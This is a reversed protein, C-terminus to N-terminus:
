RGVFDMGARARIQDPDLWASLASRLRADAIQLRLTERLENFADEVPPQISVFEVVMVSARDKLEFMKLKDKGDQMAFCGDVVEHPLLGVAGAYVGRSTRGGTAENSAKRAFPEPEFFGSDAGDPTAKMAALEADAEFGEKLTGTAACGLLSEAHAKAAEYARLQRVDAVLRDRVDDVTEAPHGPKAEIVRFVFHNGTASESLPLSSTQFTALYDAPNTGEAKPIEPIMAQTRAVISGFSQVTGREPRFAASGIEKVKSADKLPFSDTTAVTVAGPFNMTSPLRSILEDYYGPTGGKEPVVKYGDKGRDAELWLESSQQILWNAVREAAEDASKKRVLEVAVSEAEEWDMYPSPASGPPGVILGAEAPDKPMQDARRRFAPDKTRNEEFFARAKKEINAVGIGGAIANRDIRAYQVKMMPPVFYGFNLGEGPERERYKALHEKLEDDSLTADQDVFAKARLLVANVKVTELVDRVTSKLEAESPVAAGAVSLATSTVSRYQALAERIDAPRVKLVRAVQTIEEATPRNEAKVAAETTGVGLLNAERNLLIWDISELAENGVGLPRRWDLRLAGLLEAQNKAVQQDKFTIDGYKSKAVTYNTDPTLLSNLASGGIFVIMLAVMFVALMEKNYKRFFKMM